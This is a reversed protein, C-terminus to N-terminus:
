PKLPKRLSFRGIRGSTNRSSGRLVFDPLSYWKMNQPSSKGTVPSYHWDIPNKYNWNHYSFAFITGSIINDAHAVIEQRKQEPLKKLFARIVSVNIQFIDVRTIKIEHEFLKETWPCLRLMKLKVSYFGRNMIWTLGYEKVIPYITSKM